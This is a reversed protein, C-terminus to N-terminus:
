HHVHTTCEHVNCECVHLVHLTKKMVNNQLLQIFIIICVVKNWIGPCQDLECMTLYQMHCVNACLVCQWICQNNLTQFLKGHSTGELMKAEQEFGYEELINSTKSMVSPEKGSQTMCLLRVGGHLGDREYKRQVSQVETKSMLGEQAIAGLVTCFFTRECCFECLM